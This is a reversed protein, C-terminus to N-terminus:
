PGSLEQLPQLWGKSVMFSVLSADALMAPIQQLGYPLYMWKLAAANSFGALHAHYIGVLVVPVSIAYGVVATTAYVRPAKQASLYGTKYLGMGFMLMGAFQSPLDHLDAVSRRPQSERLWQIPVFTAPIKALLAERSLKV